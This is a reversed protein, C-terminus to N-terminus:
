VTPAFGLYLDEQNNYEPFVRRFWKTAVPYGGLKQITHFEDLKEAANTAIYQEMATYTLGRNANYIVYPRNVRIEFHPLDRMVNLLEKYEATNPKSAQKMEKASLVISRTTFNVKM